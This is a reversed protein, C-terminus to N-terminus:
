SIQADGAPLLSNLNSIIFNAYKYYALLAVNVAIGIGLAAWARRNQRCRAILLGCAYNAAISFLLILLYHTEGWAYFLLSAGLLLLNKGRTGALWYAALVIPLFLFMFVPSTFVM